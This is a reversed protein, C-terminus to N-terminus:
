SDVCRRWEEQAGGRAFAQSEVFTGLACLGGNHPPCPAPLQVVADNILARVSEELKDECALKEFVVRGAFPVIKSAVWTRQYDLRAPDMADEQTQRLVGLAALISIIQNDHSLDAYLRRDLPFTAPDSDLTHNTSTSDIVATRTLRALLENVYGVGQVSGLKNGYGNGYYKDLDMWYEFAAVDEVTWLACWPSTRTGRLSDASALTHFACLSMLNPVDVNDLKLTDPPNALAQLRRIIAPAFVDQWATQFPASSAAAPCMSDDLTTNFGEDESVILPPPLPVGSSKEFGATWNTGTFIVRESGSARIFPKGLHKYRKAALIGSDFSQKAGFPLLNDTGLNYVFSPIFDLKSDNWTPVSQMKALAAQIRSTAGHTPFRAGHRQLINAMTVKCGRPVRYKMAPFYPSYAGWSDAFPLGSSRRGM